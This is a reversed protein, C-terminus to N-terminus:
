HPLPIEHAENCVHILLEVPAPNTYAQEGRGLATRQISARKEHGAEDLQTSSKFHM